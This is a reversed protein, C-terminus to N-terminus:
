RRNGAWPPDHAAGGAVWAPAIVSILLGVGLLAGAYAAFFPDAGPFM